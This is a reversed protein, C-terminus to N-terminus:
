RSARCEGVQRRDLNTASLSGGGTLAVAGDATLTSTMSARRRRRREPHLADARESRRVGPVAATSTLVVVPDRVILRGEGAGVKDGDYAVAMLRLRGNFDPLTLPVRAKGEADLKVIGSFLAVM